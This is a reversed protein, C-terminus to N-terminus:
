LKGLAKSVYVPKGDPTFSYADDEFGYRGDDFIYEHEFGDTMILTATCAANKGSMYCHCDQMLLTSILYDAGRRYGDEERDFQIDGVLQYEGSTFSDFRKYDMSFVKGPFQRKIYDISAEEDSNVYIETIGWPEMVEKIKEAIEEKSPQIYHKYPKKKIYDTGRVSVGLIKEGKELHPKMVQKRILEYEMQVKNSLRIYKNYLAHWQARVKLDMVLAGEIYEYYDSFTVQNAEWIDDLAYDEQLQRFFLEWANIKGVQEFSDHYCSYCNKMDIVPICGQEEAQELGRICCNFMSFLGASNTGKGKQIICFKLDKYKDGFHDMTGHSHQEMWGEYFENGSVIEVDLKLENWLYDSIEKEFTSTILVTDYKKQKLEELSYFPIGIEEESKKKKSQDRDYAAVINFYRKLWWYHNEIWRGMGYLLVRKGAFREKLAKDTYQLEGM